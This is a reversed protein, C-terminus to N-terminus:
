RRRDAGKAGRTPKSPPRANSKTGAHGRRAKTTPRKSKTKDVKEKAKGKNKGSLSLKEKTAVDFIKIESVEGEPLTALEYPGYSIRILRNVQLGLSEMLVRVERNKGERLDVTIWANDKQVRDLTATVPGYKIGDVFRGKRLKDLDEQKIRGYARVRYRRLAGNAPLELKRAMEGDNTLLLLGESNVDLRGVTIVRPLDKPLKDFVTDRGEPDNNTTVLGRPKHYRWLRTPETRPIFTGDVKIKHNRTVNLAPSEIVVGDVSVRGDAIMREAERRSCVGARALVKAIRDGKPIEKSNEDTM